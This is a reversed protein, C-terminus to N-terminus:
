IWLFTNGCEGWAFYLGIIYFKEDIEKERVFQSTKLKGQTRWPIVEPKIEFTYKRVDPDIDKGIQEAYYLQDIFLEKSSDRFIKIGCEHM